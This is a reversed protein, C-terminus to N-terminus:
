LLGWCTGGCLCCSFSLTRRGVWALKKKGQTNETGGQQSALSVALGELSEGVLSPTNSGVSGSSMSTATSTISRTDDELDVGEDDDEENDSPLVLDDLDDYDADSDSENGITSNELTTKMPDVDNHQKDDLSPITNANIIENKNIEEDSAKSKKAM